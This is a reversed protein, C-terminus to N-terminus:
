LGCNNRYRLIKGDEGVALFQYFYGCNIIINVCCSELGSGSQTLLVAQGNSSPTVVPFFFHKKKICM